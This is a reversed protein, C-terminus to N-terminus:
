SAAPESLWAALAEGSLADIADDVPDQGAEDLRAGLGRVERETLARGVRRAARRAVAEVRGKREGKEEGRLEVQAQYQEFWERTEMIFDREEDTQQAPDTPVDLRLRQLWPLAVAKEWADEPLAALDRIAALRTRKPGLLRLLVTDRTRPLETVVVVHIRWAPERLVYHGPMDEHALVLGYEQIVGEPRGGSTLWLRPLPWARSERQELVHRWQYRKRLSDHFAREGLAQVFLDVMAPEAAIEALLGPAAQARLDARAPAPVYWLDIRQADTAPVETEPQALGHLVLFDRLVNKGLQDFPAHMPMRPVVLPTFPVFEPGNM